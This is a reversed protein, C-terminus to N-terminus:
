KTRVDSQMASMKVVLSSILSCEDLETIDDHVVLRRQFTYQFVRQESQMTSRLAHGFMKESLQELQHVRAQWTPSGPVFQQLHISQNLASLRRDPSSRRAPMHPSGMRNYLSHVARMGPPPSRQDPPLTSTYSHTGTSQTKPHRSDRDGTGTNACHRPSM